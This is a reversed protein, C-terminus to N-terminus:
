HDRVMQISPSMRNVEGYEKHLTIMTVSRSAGYGSESHWSDTPALTNFSEMVVGTEHEQVTKHHIHGLWWRRYTTRGWAESQKRTMVGALRQINIKDGHNVGILCKGFEIFNFKSANDLVQVRPEKDYVAEVFMNLAFASDRDHNGRANIVRVTKFKTLMKDICYRIVSGAARMVQNHRASVDLVHGSQTQNTADNAHTFDGVNIFWGEESAVACDVCYDIAKKLDEVGKDLDYDEDLTDIAHALMGLHADGFIIASALNTNFNKPLKTKKAPTIENTLGEIFERYQIEEQEKDLKGKMWSREIQGDGNRQITFDGTFNEPVPHNLGKDPDYLRRSAQKEVRQVLQLVAQKSLGFEKAVTRVRPTKALASLVETQRPTVCFEILENYNRM